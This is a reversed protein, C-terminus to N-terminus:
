KVMVIKRFFGKLFRHKGTYDTLDTITLFRAFAKKFWPTNM